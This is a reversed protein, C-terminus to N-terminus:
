NITKKKTKLKVWCLSGVRQKSNLYVRLCVNLTMSNPRFLQGYHLMRLLLDQLSQKLQESRCRHKANANSDRFITKTSQRGDTMMEFESKMCSLAHHFRSASSLCTTQVIDAHQVFSSQILAVNMPTATAELTWMAMVVMRFLAMAVTYCLTTFEKKRLCSKM